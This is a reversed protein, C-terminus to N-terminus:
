EVEVPVTEATAGNTRTADASGYTLRGARDMKCAGCSLILSWLRDGHDIAFRQAAMAGMSTGHVRVSSGWCTWCHPSTTAGTEMSLGNAVRDSRGYGRLDLDLARYRTAMLPTIPEFNRHGFGAGHVHVVPEGSGTLEYWLSIGNVAVTAM